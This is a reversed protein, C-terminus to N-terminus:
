NDAVLEGGEFGLMCVGANGAVGPVSEPRLQAKAVTTVPTRMMMTAKIQSIAERRGEGSM